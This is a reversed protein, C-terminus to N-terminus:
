RYYSKQCSKCEGRYIVNKIDTKKAKINCIINGVTKGRMYITRVDEKHLVKELRESSGKVYPICLTAKPRCNELEKKESLEPQPSYSRVIEDVKHPPYGNSIFTNTIFDLEEKLDEETSCLKHARYLLSKIGNLHLKAPRNSRFKAYSNTHTPKRYVRTHFGDLTRTITMDMFPLSQEDNEKEQTWQIRPEM